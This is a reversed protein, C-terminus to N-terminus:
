KSLGATAARGVLEAAEVKIKRLESNEDGSLANGFDKYTNRIKNYVFALVESKEYRKIYKLINLLKKACEENYEGARGILISGLAYLISVNGQTKVLPVSEPDLLCKDMDADTMNRLLALYEAFKGAAAPGVQDFFINKIEEIELDRWSDLERDKITDNLILAADAWARPTPYNVVEKESDLNHFDGHMENYSMWQILEPLLGKKTAWDSWREVSPVYNYITFRDALAFDFEAVQAESARNGAAVIIWQNGPPLKYDEGVRGMQVFQMLTSIVKSNARNMEDLFIIGGNGNAGNDTPLSRPPNSRTFGRGPNIVVGNQIDPEVVDVTKPIGMFDEPQMFQVDLNLLACDLKTAAQGVIETKGIGPAGYIFIAKGRGGSAKSRKLFLIKEYLEDAKINRVDQGEGTWELPVKAEDIEESEDIKVKGYFDSLQKDIPGNEPLFLMVAPLGKNKGSTIMPVEGNKIAEYLSAAWGKLPKTIWEDIFAKAKSFFGSEYVNYSENVYSEFNYIRKGM